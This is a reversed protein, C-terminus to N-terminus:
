LGSWQRHSNLAEKAPIASTDKPFDIIKGEFENYCSNRLEKSIIIEYTAPNITMLGLDFLTHLDARLLLGNNPNNTHDGKYPVIHAAELVKEVNCGSFACKNDYLDLLRKRFQPQGRRRVISAIVHTRGDEISTFDFFEQTHRIEENRVIDDVRRETKENYIFGEKSFGEFNFYGEEWGTALALGLVQYQTPNPKKSIQRLVGVPVQDRICNILGVNTFERDREKATKNEQYYQYFWTGDDRIIPDKDPYPGGITQRISLTYKSWKPKYIGKAQTVLLTGDPMKGPWSVVKGTNELFWNLAKRHQANLKLLYDM